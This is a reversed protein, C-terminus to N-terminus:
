ERWRGAVPLLGRGSMLFLPGAGEALLESDMRLVVSYACAPRHFERLPVAPAVEAFPREVRAHGVDFMLDNDPCGFPWVEVKFEPHAAKFAMAEAAVSELTGDNEHGAFEGDGLMLHCPSIRNATWCFKIDM